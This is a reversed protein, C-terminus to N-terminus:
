EVNGLCEACSLCTYETNVRDYAKEIDLFTLYGISGKWNCMDIIERVVFMNDEGHKNIRLGNQEEGIIGNIEVAKRIRENLCM